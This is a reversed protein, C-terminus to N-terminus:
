RTPLDSPGFPDPLLDHLRRRRLPGRPGALYLTEVGFENMVQRCAGCPAASTRGATVVAIERIKRHGAAVAQFLAVREACVSLGYSANEVNAGTFVAGDAALVAAGVRYRSYPAYARARAERAAAVLAQATARGAGRGTM